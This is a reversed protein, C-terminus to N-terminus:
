AHSTRAPDPLPMGADLWRELIIQAALADQREAHKRRAIGRRRAAAHRADAERSSHREDVMAVPLAFRDRLRGAFRRAVHTAEQVTGDANLPDGVVLAQPRWEDILQGARRLEDESNRDITCLVRASHTLPNGIAVGIWRTGVDFALACGIPPHAPHAAGTNM